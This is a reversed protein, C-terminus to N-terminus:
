DCTSVDCEFDANVGWTDSDLGLLNYTDDPDNGSFNVGTALITGADTYIGGGFLAAINQDFSAGELTLSADYIAIGGGGYLAENAEFQLDSTQADCGEQLSLGGGFWAVNDAFLVDSLSLDVAGACHLGGGASSGSLGLDAAPVFSLEAAGDRLELNSLSVM